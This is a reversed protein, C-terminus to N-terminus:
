KGPKRLALGIGVMLLPAIQEPDEGRFIDIDYDVTKLPNAIEVPVGHHQGLYDALGVIRANGGSLVIRDVGDASATRVFSFSRDISNALDEVVSELIPQLEDPSVDDVPEGKLLAISTEYTQNLNRQIAETFTKGAVFIEKQFIPHGERIVILNSVESGVDILAITEPSIGYNEEYSNMMAFNDLDIIVPVLGAERILDVRTNIMDRKAAVLLVSMQRDSSQDDIIQLDLYVEDIDFPVHQEAEWRIAERAEEEKMKDMTIPKMIVARGSVSTVVHKTKLGTEEWLERITEIVLDRDMIEGEVIAEPLLPKVGFNELSYGKGSKKLEVVKILHSGIDLGVAPTVKKFFM